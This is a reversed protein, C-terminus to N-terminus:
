NDIIAPGLLTGEIFVLSGCDGTYSAGASVTRPLKWARVSSCSLFYEDVSPNVNMPVGMPLADGYRFDAFM